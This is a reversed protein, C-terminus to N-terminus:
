QTLFVMQALSWTVPYHHTQGKNRLLSDYKLLVGDVPEGGDSLTCHWHYEEQKTKTGIITM